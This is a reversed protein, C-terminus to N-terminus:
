PNHENISARTNWINNIKYYYNGNKVWSDDNELIPTKFYKSLIGKSPNVNTLTSEINTAIIMDSNINGWMRLECLRGWSVADRRVGLNWGVGVVVVRDANVIRNLYYEVQWSDNLM